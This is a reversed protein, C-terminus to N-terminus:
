PTSSAGNFHTRRRRQKGARSYLQGLLYEWRALEKKDSAAPLAKELYFAASDYQSTSYFWYASVETSLATCANPSIPDYRLTQILAAAEQMENRTIHTRILWILADNRSPPETFAKDM